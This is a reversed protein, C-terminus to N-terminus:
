LQQYFFGTLESDAKYRNSRNYSFALIKNLENGAWDLAQKQHHKKVLATSIDPLQSFWIISTYILWDDRPIPNWGHHNDFPLPKEFVMHDNLLKAKWYLKMFKIERSNKLNNLDCNITTAKATQVSHTISCM